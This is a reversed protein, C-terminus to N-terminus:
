GWRRKGPSDIRPMIATASVVGLIPPSAGSLNAVNRTDPPALVYPWAVPAFLEARGIGRQSGGSALRAAPSPRVLWAHSGFHFVGGVWVSGEEREGDRERPHQGLDFGDKGRGTGDFRLTKALTGFQYLPEEGPRHGGGGRSRFLLRRSPDREKRPPHGPRRRLGHTSDVVGRADPM